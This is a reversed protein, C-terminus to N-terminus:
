LKMSLRELSQVASSDLLDKSIIYFYLFFSISSKYIRLFKWSLRQYYFQVCCLKLTRISSYRIQFRTMVHCSVATEKFQTQCTLNYYVARGDNNVVDDGAALSVGNCRNLRSRSRTNILRSCRPCTHSTCTSSRSPLAIKNAYAWTCLCNRVTRRAVIVTTKRERM